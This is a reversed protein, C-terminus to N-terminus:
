FATPDNWVFSPLAFRVPGKGVTKVGHHYEETAPFILISRRPPTVQIGKYTFYFQGDVYDDNLYVVAAYKMKSDVYQDYHGRLEAGEYQRQIVGFSRYYLIANKDFFLKLRDPLHNVLNGDVRVVKDQWDYTVETKTAELDRTGERAEVRNKIGELYAGVWGEETTNIAFDYLAQCEEETLFNKILFVEPDLQEYEYGAAVINNVSVDTM